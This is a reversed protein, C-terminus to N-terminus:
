LLRMHGTCALACCYSCYCLRGSILVARGDAFSTILTKSAHLPMCCGLCVKLARCLVVDALQAEAAAASLAALGPSLDDLEPPALTQDAQRPEGLARLDAAVARAYSPLVAVTDAYVSETINRPPTTVQM